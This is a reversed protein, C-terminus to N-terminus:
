PCLLVRLLSVGHFLCENQCKNERHQQAARLSEGTDHDDGARGGVAIGLAHRLVQGVGDLCQVVLDDFLALDEGEVFDEARSGLAVAIGRRQVAVAHADHAAAHRLHGGRQVLRQLLQAVVHGVVLAMGEAAREVGAIHLIGLVRGQRVVSM